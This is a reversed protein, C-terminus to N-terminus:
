KATRRGFKHQDTQTPVEMPYEGTFCGSCFEVDDFVMKSLNEVNLYVLSDAGIKKRIEEVTYNHAVLNERSPIDTGFYCPHIFPPASVVLHVETAGENRLMDVINKSTTGRVISDDVLVVRKGKISQGLPNLKLRVGMERQGQDPQIFTRGVYRNKMLGEGYQIGSEESYGLAACLGSDPVGVVIDAEIPHQRYLLRGAEKRAEYISIGEIYSDPRSFYIYEFICNKSKGIVNKTISKLEGNECVVVEGPLVDRVYKAGVTDLACTESAFVYSNKIKGICLPRIGYPDRAALLKKPSILVLSFSGNVKRMMRSVAEEISGSNIRERAIIYAMVESDITTQFIAGNRELSLRLEEANVLNGNHALVMTGKIYKLVMPQSNEKLSAGTTSYRVHGVAIQGKLEDLTRKDFVESVLGMDKHYVIDGDNNVAIGASEQGRHQLAYLGYYTLRAIDLSDNNDYIGFVGCEEKLKSYDLYKQM